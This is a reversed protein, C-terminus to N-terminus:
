TNVLSPVEGSTLVILGWLSHIKFRSYLLNQEMKTLRLSDWLKTASQLDAM